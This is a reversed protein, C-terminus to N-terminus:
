RTAPTTSSRAASLGAPGSGVVAVRIGTRALPPEPTVWGDAWARGRDRGRHDQDDGGAASIGVTCSGECPAPCVRGTFEPFNNTKQLRLAAERWKGRYVLDNWEPILNNIPCGSAMGGIIEGTHCFPMGCDMCRAGQERLTGETTRRTRSAGTGSRAGAAPAPTRRSASTSWSGADAQGDNREEGAALEPWARADRVNEEFAAM